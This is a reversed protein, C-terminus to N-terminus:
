VGFPHLYIIIAALGLTNALLERELKSAVFNINPLGHADVRSGVETTLMFRATRSYNSWMKITYEMHSRALSTSNKVGDLWSKTAWWSMVHAKFIVTLVFWNLKCLYLGGSLCCWRREHVSRRGTLNQHLSQVLLSTEMCVEDHIKIHNPQFYLCTGFLHILLRNKLLVVKHKRVGHLQKTACNSTNGTNVNGVTYEKLCQSCLHLVQIDDKWLWLRGKGKRENCEPPFFFFLLFVRKEVRPLKLLVRCLTAACQPLEAMTTM